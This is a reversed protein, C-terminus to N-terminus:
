IPAKVRKLIRLNFVDAGFVPLRPEMLRDLENERVEAFPVAIM